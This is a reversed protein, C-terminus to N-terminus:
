SFFLPNALLVEKFKTSFETAKTEDFGNQVALNHAQNALSEIHEFKVLDEKMQRKKIYDHVLEVIIGCIIAALWENGLSLLLSSDAFFGLRRNKDSLNFTSDMSRCYEEVYLDSCDALDPALDKIINRAIDASLLQTSEAYEM